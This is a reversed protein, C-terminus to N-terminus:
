HRRSNDLYRSYRGGGYRHRFSHYFCGYGVEKIFEKFVAKMAAPRSWIRAFHRWKKPYDIWRDPPQYLQAFPMAGAEWVEIMRETADSITETPNFKLLVYCRVKGRPLGIKKIARRLPRIAERIDCALFIQCVRLTRLAETIEDTILRADLGGSFQIFRQGKLMEFVQAIHGKSCQFLNNDQIINGTTILLEKLKGERKWALCWPCQSNCGRSTFTVGQRVYKGSEFGDCPDDYAPGGLEIDYYQGWAQALYEARLKDWTFTASIHVLEAEPRMMPPEGIFAYDDTPTFSTRRPFVRIIKM